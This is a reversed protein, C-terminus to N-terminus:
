CPLRVSAKFLDGDILLAFRGGQSLVFSQAISLGLGSGEGGRSEDGRKFRETLESPDVNLARESINKIDLRYWGDEPAIDVYVRSRAQAYKFVNSLLNEMVRWMLKGDARVPAHEPLATRFDLGSAQVREDLEGLVQRVFDALDLNEVQVDINGSAVKSAEFLDDTLTKLRASKQILIELYEPAKENDLGESKLLDTYTILSTLPTRIDHSINTILETKLRESKLREAVAANMGDSISNISFAISGLEGGSVTVPDDYRGEGVAKAGQELLYLKRSFRLLAFVTLASVLLAFVVGFAFAGSSPRVVCCFLSLVFLALGLMVARMTLPFGAWLSKALSAVKVAIWRILSYILTYRWFKGAKCRKTFSTLWGLIPLPVLVSFLASLTIIMPGNNYNWATSVAEYLGYLLLAEYVALVFLGIDLWPKDIVSFHVPRRKEAAAAGGAAGEAAHGDPCAADPEEPHADAGDDAEYRRGVGHRRGAGTILIVALAAAFVAPILTIMLGNGLKRQADRWVENQANVADASFAIYSSLKIADSGYSNGPGYGYPSSYYPYEPGGLRSQRVPEGYEAIRYVPQGRFFGWQTDPSVNGVWREGDTVLFLLGTTEELEKEMYYYENLQSNIAEEVIEQIYPDDMDPVNMDAAKETLVSAVQWTIAGIVSFLDYSRRWVPAGDEEYDCYEGSPRWELCGMSRINEESQLWFLTYARSFANPIYNDYFLDYNNLNVAILRSWTYDLNALALAGTLSIFTLVPILVVCLIKVSRRATWGKLRTAM